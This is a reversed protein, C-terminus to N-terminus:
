YALRTSRQNMPATLAVAVLLMILIVLAVNMCAEFETLCKDEVQEVQEVEDKHASSEVITTM